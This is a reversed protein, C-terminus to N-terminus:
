PDYSANSAPRRDCECVAAMVQDVGYDYLYGSSRRLVGVYQNGSMNNPESGEWPAYSAAEGTVYRWPWPAAGGPDRVVGVWADGPITQILTTLAAREADDDIIVLHSAGPADAECAHEADIWLQLAPEVRYGTGAYTAPCPPADVPADEAAVRADPDELGPSADDNAGDGTAPAEDVHFGCAAVFLLAGLWRM